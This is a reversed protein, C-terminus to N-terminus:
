HNLYELFRGSIKEETRPEQLWLDGLVASGKFRLSSVVDLNDLSVGGLAFVKEALIESRCFNMLDERSFASGYGEKSISDFVPSLFVYDCQGSFSIVEDLSHCSRSVLVKRARKEQSAWAPLEPNRGNLHIGGLSYDRVLDFHDHVAIRERYQIDIEEIWEAMEEIAAGPKRLHLRKLGKRFLGNVVATEGPFFYPLTIVIIDM